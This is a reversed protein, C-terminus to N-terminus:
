LTIGIRPPDGSLSLRNFQEFQSLCRILRDTDIAENALHPRLADQIGQAYQTAMAGHTILYVMMAVRRNEFAVDLVSQNLANKSDLKFGGRLWMELREINNAAIAQWADMVQENSRLDYSLSTFQSKSAERGKAILAQQKIPNLDFQIAPIGMHDIYITRNLEDNRRHDAEQKHNITSLIRWLYSMGDKPNKVPKPESHGTYVELKESDVLRFGLTYPNQIIEESMPNGHPLYKVRDFVWLPYKDTLAGDVFLDDSIKIRAGNHKKHRSHCEFFGPISLSIRLADSIIDDPTTEYSFIEVQERSINAGTVYLDKYVDPNQMRLQHLEAFTCYAIGTKQQIMREFVHERIYNGPFLGFQDKNLIGLAKTILKIDPTSATKILNSVASTAGSPARKFNGVRALDAAVGKAVAKLQQKNELLYFLKDRYDSDM